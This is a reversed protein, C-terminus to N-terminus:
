RAWLHVKLHVPIESGNSAFIERIHFAEEVGKNAPRAIVDEIDFCQVKEQNASITVVPTIRSNVLVTALGDAEVLIMTLAPRRPFRMRALFTRPQITAVCCIGPGSAWDNVVTDLDDSFPPFLSLPVAIQRQVTGTRGRIWKRLRSGIEM